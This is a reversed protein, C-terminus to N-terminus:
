LNNRNIITIVTQLSNNNDSVQFWILKNVLFVKTNCLGVLNSMDYFLGFM